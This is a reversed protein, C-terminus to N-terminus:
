DDRTEVAAGIAAVVTRKVSAAPKTTAIGWPAVVRDLGNAEPAGGSM